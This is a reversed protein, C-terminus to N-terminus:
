IVYQNGQYISLLFGSLHRPNLPANSEFRCATCSDIPGICYLNTTLKEVTKVFVRLLIIPKFSIQLKQRVSIPCIIFIGQM